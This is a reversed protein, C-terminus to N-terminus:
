QIVASLNTPAAPPNSGVGTGYCNNADFAIITTGPYNTSDQPTNEYCLRAPIENATGAPLTALNGGTVDPGMPPFPPNGYASAYWAPRSNYYFSSPLTHSAPVTLGNFFPTSATPIESNVFRCTATVTDCNGWRMMENAVETDDHFNGSVAACGAVWGLVFISTYCPSTTGTNPSAEYNTNFSGGIVGGICQSAKDATRGNFTGGSCKLMGLVNGIINTGRQNAQLEFPSQNQTGGNNIDVPVPQQGPIHNRFYTSANCGGHQTDQSVGNIDNGEILIMYAGPDHCVYTVQMGNGPNNNWTFNYGLTFSNYNEGVILGAPLQDTINNEVLWDSSEGPDIMYGGGSTHGVSGEFYSDRVVGVANNYMYVHNRGGSGINRINKIWCQYCELINIASTISPGSAIHDFTLNQVGCQTCLSSSINWWAGPHQSARWNPAYLGPSITYTSGSINTIVVAQVQERLVGGMLRGNNNGNASCSPILGNQQCVLWGNATAVDDAQDIFLVTGVRPRDSGVNAVTIHTAGQPYVGVGGETTGIITLANSATPLIPGGNGGTVGSQDFTNISAILAVDTNGSFGGCGGATFKVITKLPGSGRLEVHSHGAWTICGANMTFTGPGLLVYHNAGCNAIATNIAATSGTYAAITSGCQTWSGSPITFTVGPSNRWDIARSPDLIGTWAQARVTNPVLALIGLLLWHLQKRKMFEGSLFALRKVKVISLVESHIWVM